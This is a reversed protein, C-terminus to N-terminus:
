IDMDAPVSKINGFGTDSYDSSRSKERLAKVVPILFAIVLLFTFFDSGPFALWVGDLGLIPPLILVIPILFGVPRMVSALFAPVAKGIAQFVTTGVTIPGILPMGLFMLRAAASGIALLEADDTFIRMIPEPIFYVILFAALSFVISSLMAIRTVKLALGYRKAGYNYGLIPQMGQGIVLAPMIGFMLVRQVIGFASLAYDGGYTVVMNIVLMSSISSAFTQMFAGIGIAFMPRIIKIDLKLNKVRIKLYSNGNWYYFAFVIVSVVQAIFTAWGAGKVGYDLWVIFIYDFLINVGAGLIMAIMGVRTNGEARSFNLLATSFVQFLLAYMIITLYDRAYPLVDASAGILTLWFDIFPLIAILVLISVGIGIALGNGLAKEADDIRREGIYRSILSMGGIGVMMGMGMGLMHLPFVISLGAIGLPGVEHGVFITNVVNYLTQVFMGLFAPMSLKVLLSGIKDTDLVNHGDRPPQLQTM